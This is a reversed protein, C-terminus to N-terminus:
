SYNSFTVICLSKTCVEYVHRDMTYTSGAALLDIADEALLTFRDAFTVNVLQVRYNEKGMVAAAVARCKLVIM